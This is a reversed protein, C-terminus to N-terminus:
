IIYVGTFLRSHKIDPPIHKFNAYKKPTIAYTNKVSLHIKFLNASVPALKLNVNVSLDKFKATLFYIFKTTCHNSESQEDEASCCSSNEGCDTQAFYTGSDQCAHIALQGFGSSLTIFALLLANLWKM